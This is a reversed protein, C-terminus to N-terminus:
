PSFAQIPLEQKMYEQAFVSVNDKKYIDERFNVTGDPAVWSTVYVFIVPVPAALRQDVATGSKLIESTQSPTWEPTTSLLWDALATIKEVRVCGSSFGRSTNNFLKKLPTDHLYIIDPNPM